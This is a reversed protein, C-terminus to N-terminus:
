WGGDGAIRLTTAGRLDLVLDAGIAAMRLVVQGCGRCRGTLGPGTYVVLEAVARTQHCGDCTVQATTLDLGFHTGLDGGLANGDLPEM